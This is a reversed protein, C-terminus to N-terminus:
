LFSHISSKVPQRSSPACGYIQVRYVELVSWHHALGASTGTGPNADIEMLYRSSCAIEQHYRCGDEMSDQYRRRNTEHGGATIARREGPQLEDQNPRLLAAAGPSPAPLSPAM